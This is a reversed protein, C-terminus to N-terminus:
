KMNREVFANLLRVARQYRTLINKPKNGDEYYGFGYCQVTSNERHVYVDGWVGLRDHQLATVTVNTIKNKM